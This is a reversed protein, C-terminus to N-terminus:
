EKWMDWIAGAINRPKGIWAYYHLDIFPLTNVEIIGWKQQSSDEKPYPIICDFGAVALGTVQAAKEIIPIFSPHLYDLMEETYGGFLRGGRHYLRLSVDKELVSDVNLGSQNIHNELEINIVIDEIREKKNKNKEEILEKVTKKGDGIVEPPVAMYFGMLKGGVVTARCIPGQLHEEVSVFSSIQNVIALSKKFNDITNINTITHRGRSGNKPKVIIPKSLSNFVSETQYFNFISILKSKPVPIDYKLLEKKLVLKDDWNKKMDLYKYPIPISEFYFNRNNVVTRYYDLPKNFLIVQQMKIGRRNAEEWIVKSRFTKVRNIDNSFELKGFLGFFRFLYMPFTNAFKKLFAPSNYAVITMQKDFLSGLLSEIYSLKHNLPADGCYACNIIIKKPELDKQM